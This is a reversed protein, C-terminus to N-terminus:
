GIKIGTAVKNSKAMPGYSQFAQGSSCKLASVSRGKNDSM